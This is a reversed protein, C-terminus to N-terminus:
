PTLLLLGLLRGLMLPCYAITFGYATSYFMHFYASFKIFQQLEGFEGFNKKGGFNKVTCVYPVVHSYCTGYVLFREHYTFTM